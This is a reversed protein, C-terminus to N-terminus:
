EILQGQNALAAELQNRPVNYVNGDPARVRVPEQAHLRNEVEKEVLDAYNMPRFGSNKEKMESAVQGRLLPAKSYKELIDLVANNAEPSKGIDPLKTELLRLDADSLRVGFVEKWGELLLPIAAEVKGQEANKFANAVKDGVSGLNRFVNSVAGPKVKGSKLAERIDKVAEVQQKTRKVSKRIEEDYEKSEEHTRRREQRSEKLRDLEGQATHGVASIHPNKSSKFAAQRVLFKEHEPDFKDVSSAVSPQPALSPTLGQNGQMQPPTSTSPRMSQDDIPQQPPVGRFQNDFGSNQSIFDQYANRDVEAQAQPGLISAYVPATSKKYQEPLQAFANVKQLPSAKPDSLVGMLAQSKMKETKKEGAQQIGQGTQQLVSGFRDLFSPLQPLLQVM